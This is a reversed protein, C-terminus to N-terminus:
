EDGHLRVVQARQEVSLVEYVRLLAQVRLASVDELARWRAEELARAKETNLRADVALLELAEHADRATQLRERVAPAQEYFIHLVADRQAKSLQLEQLWDPPAGISQAHAAAALALATLLTAIRTM